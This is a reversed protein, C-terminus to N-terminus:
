RKNRAGRGAGTKINKDHAARERRRQKIGAAKEGLEAATQSYKAPNGAALKKVIAEAFGADTVAIMACSTRGVSKGIDEKSFPVSLWACGGADSFHRVRRYTNDAADAAVFIVFAERARAAAGVPEDGAEIAGARKALGITSLINDM